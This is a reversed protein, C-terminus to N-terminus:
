GKLLTKATSESLSENKTMSIMMNSDIVSFQSLDIIESFLANFTKNSYYKCYAGICSRTSMYLEGKYKFVNIMTGDIFDEAYCNDSTNNEIFSTYKLSKPPSFCVIKGNNIIISRALGLTSYEEKDLNCKIYKVITYINDGQSYKKATIKLSNNSVDLFESYDTINKYNNINMDNLNYTKEQSVM